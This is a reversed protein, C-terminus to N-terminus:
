RIASVRGGVSLSSEMAVSMIRDPESTSKVLTMSFRLSNKYVLYDFHFIEPRPAIKQKLGAAADTPEGETLHNELLLQNRLLRGDVSTRCGLDRAVGQRWLSRMELRTRFGDDRDEIGAADALHLGKLVLRRHFFIRALNQSAINT